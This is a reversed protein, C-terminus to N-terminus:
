LAFALSVSYETMRLTGSGGLYETWPKGNWHQKAELKILWTPLIRIKVGGGYNLGFKTEGGGETVSSGPWVYNIFHGGGAAYPRIRSGEPTAYALFSYIGEHGAFGAEGITTGAVSYVQKMRNYSYGFEHGFHRWNNLAMMFGFKWDADLEISQGELVGLAGESLNLVGGGFQFEAVQASAGATLALFLVATLAFRMSKM